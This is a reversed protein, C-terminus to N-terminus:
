APRVHPGALFGGDLILSQGTMFAAASSCMWLVAEAVESPKGFRGLPHLGLAMKNAEPEGFLREAM